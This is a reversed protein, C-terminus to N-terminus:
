FSDIASRGVPVYAGNTKTKTAPARNGTRPPPSPTESTKAERPNDKVYDASAKEIASKLDADKTDAPITPLIYKAVGIYLPHKDALHDRLASETKLRRNEADVAKRDEREKDLLEQLEGKRELEDKDQKEKERQRQADAERRAEARADDIIKQREAATMEIKDDAAKKDAPKKDDGGGGGGKEGETNFHHGLGAMAALGLMRLTKRKNRRDM